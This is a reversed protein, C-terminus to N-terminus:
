RREVVKKPSREPFCLNPALYVNFKGHRSLEKVTIGVCRHLEFGGEKLEKKRGRGGTALAKERYARMEPTEQRPGMVIRVRIGGLTEPPTAETISDYGMFGVDIGLFQGGVFAKKVGLKELRRCFAPWSEVPEPSSNLMNGGKTEVMFVRRKARREELEISTYGMEHSSSLVLVPAKRNKNTLLRKLRRHYDEEVPAVRKAFDQSFYGTQFFGKPAYFPDVLLIVKGGAKQIAQKLKLLDRQSMKGIVPYKSNPIPTALRRALRDSVVIEPHDAFMVRDGLRKTKERWYAMRGSAMDSVTRAAAIFDKLKGSSFVDGFEKLGSGAGRQSFL